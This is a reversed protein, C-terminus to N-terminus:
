RQRDGRHWSLRDLVRKRATECVKDEGGLAALCDILRADGGFGAAKCMAVIEHDILGELQLQEAEDFLRMAEIEEETIRTM